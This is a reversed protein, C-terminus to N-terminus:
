KLCLEPTERSCACFMLHLTSVPCQSTFWAYHKHRSAGPRTQPFFFNCLQSFHFVSWPSYLSLSTPCLCSPTRISHPAGLFSWLLWSTGWTLDIQSSCKWNSSLNSFPGTFLSQLLWPPTKSQLPFPTIDLSHPVSTYRHKPKYRVHRGGM